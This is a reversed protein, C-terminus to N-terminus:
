DEEKREIDRIKRQCRDIRNMIQNSFAVAGDPVSACGWAIDDITRRMIQIKEILINEEM